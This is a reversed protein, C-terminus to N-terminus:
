FYGLMTADDKYVERILKLYNEDYHHDATKQYTGTRLSPFKSDIEIGLRGNLLSIDQHLQEYKGVFDVGIAKEGRRNGPITIWDCQPRFVPLRFIKRKYLPDETLRSVFMNISDIGDLLKSVEHKGNWQSKNKIERKYHNYGSEFRTLPNRSFAFKFSNDFRERDQHFLRSIPIHGKFPDKFLHVILSTGATKPIHIFVIESFNCDVKLLRKPFRPAGFKSLSSGFIPDFEFGAIKAKINLMEHM